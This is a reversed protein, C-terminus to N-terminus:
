LADVKKTNSLSVYRGNSRRAIGLIALALPAASLYGATGYACTRHLIGAAILAELMDPSFLGDEQAFAIRTLNEIKSLTGGDLETAIVHVALSRQNAGIADSHGGLIGVAIDFIERNM